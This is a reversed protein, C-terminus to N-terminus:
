RKRAVRQLKAPSPPVVERAIAIRAALQESVERRIMERITSMRTDVASNVIGTLMGRDVPSRGAAYATALLADLKKASIKM